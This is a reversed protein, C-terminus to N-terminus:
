NQIIIPAPKLADQENSKILNVTREVYITKLIKNKSVDLNEIATGLLYLQVLINNQSLDLYKLKICGDMNLTYLEPFNKTDFSTFLNDQLYLNKIKKSNLKLNNLGLRFAYLGQLNELNDLNLEAIQNNDGIVLEEINKLSNIKSLDSINNKRLNLNTLNKFVEIGSISSINKEDLKLKTTNNIEDIEFKGNKNLDVVELLAKEFNKDKFEFKQIGCSNLTLLIIFILITNKMKVHNQIFNTSIDRYVCDIAYVILIPEIFATLQLYIIRSHIHNTKVDITIRCSELNKL